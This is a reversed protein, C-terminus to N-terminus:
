GPGEAKEGLLSLTWGNSTPRAGYPAAHKSEAGVRPGILHQHLADFVGGHAVFLLTEGPYTNLWQAVISRSRRWCSPRRVPKRLDQPM